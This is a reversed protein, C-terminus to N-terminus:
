PLKARQTKLEDIRRVLAQHAAKCTEIKEVEAKAEPLEAVLARLTSQLQLAELKLGEARKNLREIEAPAGALEAKQDRLAIQVKLEEHKLAELRQRLKEIELSTFLPDMWLAENKQIQDRLTFSLAIQRQGLESLQKDAEAKTKPARPAPDGAWAVFALLGCGLYLLVSPMFRM